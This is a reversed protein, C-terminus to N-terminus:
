IYTYIRLIHISNGDNPMSWENVYILIGWILITGRRCVTFSLSLSRMKDNENWIYLQILSFMKRLWLHQHSSHIVDQHGRKSLVEGKASELTSKPVLKLKDRVSSIQTKSGASSCKFTHKWSSIRLPVASCLVSCQGSHKSLETPPQAMLSLQWWWSGKCKLKWFM